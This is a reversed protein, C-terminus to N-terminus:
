EVKGGMFDLVCKARQDICFQRSRTLAASSMTARRTPNDRLELIARRTAQVDTPDIRLSMDPSLLDDNFPRDSSVIPLGCAMAEIIANCCGEVLTPLVFIDCASLLRPVLDHAVRDAFIINRAEPPDPGEGAFVGGVGELGDIAAAV